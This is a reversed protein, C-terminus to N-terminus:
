KSITIELKGTRHIPMSGFPLKVGPICRFDNKKSLLIFWIKFIQLKVDRLVVCEYHLVTYSELDPMRM